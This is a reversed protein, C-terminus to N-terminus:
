DIIETIEMKAYHEGDYCRLIYVDGTQLNHSWQTRGEFDPVENVDEFAIGTQFIAPGVGGDGRADTNILVLRNEQQYVYFDSKGHVQKFGQAFSVRDLVDDLITATGTVVKDNNFSKSGDPQYAWRVKAKRIRYGKIDRVATQGKAVEQEAYLGWYGTKAATIRINGSRLGTFTFNGNADTRASVGECLIEINNADADDELHVTGKITCSNEPKVRELVIDDWVIIKGKEFTVARRFEHYGPSRVKLEGMQGNREFMVNAQGASVGMPRYGGGSGCSGGRCAGYYFPTEAHSLKGDDSHIRYILAGQNEYRKDNKLEDKTKNTISLLEEDWKDNRLSAKVNLDGKWEFSIDKKLVCVYEGGAKDKMRIIIEDVVAPEDFSFWGKIEDEAGDYKHYVASEHASCGNSDAGNTRPRVWIQVAEYEGMNYRFAVYAKEGAQLISPSKPETSLIELNCKGKQTVLNGKQRCGCFFLQSTLLLVASFGTLNKSLANKRM